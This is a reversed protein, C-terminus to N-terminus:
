RRATAGVRDFTASDVQAHLAALAVEYEKDEFPLMATAAAARIAERCGTAAGCSVRRSPFHCHIRILELENAVAGRNGMQQWELMTSRYLEEAEDLEGGRRLAHALDSYAALEFRHDCIERYTQAAAGFWRRADAINGLLGAARGRNLAAFVIM